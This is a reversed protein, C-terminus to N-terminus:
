LVHTVRLKKGLGVVGRPSDGVLHKVATEDLFLALQRKGTNLEKGVFRGSAAVQVQRFRHPVQFAVGQPQDLVNQAM